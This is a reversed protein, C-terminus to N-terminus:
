KKSPARCRTGTSGQRATAREGRLVALVDEVHRKATSPSIFLVDAIEKNTLDEALLAIVELQRPTLTGLRGGGPRGCPPAQEGNEASM